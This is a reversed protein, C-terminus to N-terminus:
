LTKYPLKGLNEYGLLEIIKEMESAAKKISDMLYRHSEISNFDNMRIKDERSKIQNFAYLGAERAIKTWMNVRLIGDDPLLRIESDSLCSTGHLVLKRENLLKQISRAREKLYVATGSGQSQQETGLDAVLFDVNTKKLYDFAKQPYDDVILDHQKKHLLSVNLEDMIGEVLIKKGYEKVYETTLEINEKLPYKQADFMVSALFETGETLALKDRFPDAHDLHPLVCVEYYPSAPDDALVKLHHMISLFGLRADNSWTIRQAQPMHDYNFTMAVVVPVNRIEYKEGINKAAM